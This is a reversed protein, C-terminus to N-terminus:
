GFLNLVAQSASSAISLSQIGLSQQTELTTLNVGEETTDANVLDGAGAELIDIMNSTFDQRNTVVSLQSSLTKAESRLTEKATDLQTLVTDINTSNASTTDWWSGATVDSLGLGSASGDIGNVTIKANGSTDSNGVIIELTDSALLNIGGYSSDEAIDSIDELISNFQTIYSETEASTDASLASKALSKATDILDTISEIGTSAANITEIGENMGDKLVSLDSATDTHDQAAFYNVPDDLASNVKKGTTLRYSTQDMLEQTAKLSSLNQSISSTLTVSGSSM